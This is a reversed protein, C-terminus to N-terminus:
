TIERFVGAVERGVDQWSRRMGWRAIATRDWRHELSSLIANKLADRDGFPVVLGHHENGVVDENGGVRTTVVPTGCALSEQLANAWGENATPLCFVDAAGYWAPLENHAVRGVMRVHNQLDREEIMRRLQESFDGEVSSGGVVCYVLEPHQKLIDPLIELVRHVGKRPVLGGVTLLIPGHGGLGLEDRALNRDQPRFCDTDVGNGIVHVSLDTDAIEQALDALSRSVAIIRDAGLLADRIKARRRDQAYSGLTGRLTICVPIGRQRGVVVAGAGTPYAFHADMLQPREEMGDVFQGLRRALFAGDWEKLLGPLYFFSCDAVKLGDVTERAPFPAGTRGRLAGLGPFWPRLRVVECLIDDPLGKLREKIFVGAAPDVVSPFITSASLIRM